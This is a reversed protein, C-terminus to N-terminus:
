EGASFIIFKKAFEKSWQEYYDKIFAELTAIKEMDNGISTSTESTTVNTTHEDTSFYGEDQPTDNYRVISSNTVGDLLTTKRNEYETIIKGYREASANLWSVFLGIFKVIEDYKENEDEYYWSVANDYFKPYIYDRMLVAIRSQYVTLNAYANTPIINYQDIAPIIQNINNITGNLAAKVDSNGYSFPGNNVRLLDVIEQFVIYNRNMKEM